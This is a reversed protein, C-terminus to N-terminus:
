PLYMPTYTSSSRELYQVYLPGEFARLFETFEAAGIGALTHRAEGTSTVVERRDEKANTDSDHVAAATPGGIGPRAMALRNKATANLISRVVPVTTDNEDEQKIEWLRSFLTCHKM